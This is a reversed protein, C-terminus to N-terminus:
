EPRMEAAISRLVAIADDGWRAARRLLDLQTHYIAIDDPDTAILRAHPVEITVVPEQGDDRDEYINFGTWAVGAWEADQLLVGVTVNQLAALNEVRSLQAAHVAPSGPKWRVAAETMLFEFRHGPDLLIQQRELRRAAAAAYDGTGLVDTVAFVRRAYEDTHLLAPIIANQFIRITHAGAELERQGAQMAPLGEGAMRTRWTEVENLAAETLATLLQRTEASAGVADAWAMVQPLAIGAKGSEIRSVTAQGKHIVSAMEDGSMGALDRLRRLERGLRVRQTRPEAERPDSTM